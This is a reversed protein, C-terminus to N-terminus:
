FPFEEGLITRGIRVILAVRVIKEPRIVENLSDQVILRVFYM